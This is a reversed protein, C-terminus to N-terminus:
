DEGENCSYWDSEPLGLGRLIGNLYGVNYMAHRNQTTLVDLCTFKRQGPLLETLADFFRGLKRGLDGGLAYVDEALM